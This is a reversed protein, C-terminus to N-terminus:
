PDAAGKRTKPSKNPSKKPSQPADDNNFVLFKTIPPKYHKESFDFAERNEKIWTHIMYSPIARLFGQDIMQKHRHVIRKKITDESTEVLYMRIEYERPANSLFGLIKVVKNIQQGIPEKTDKDREETIKLTTDYLIHYSKAIGDQIAEDIVALVSRDKQDPKKRHDEVTKKTLHWKECKCLNSCPECFYEKGSKGNSRPQTKIPPYQNAIAAAAAAKTVHPKKKTQKTRNNAINLATILSGLEDNVPNIAAAKAAKERKTRVSDPVSFQLPYIAQPINFKKRQESNLYPLLLNSEQTQVAQLYYQSLKDINNQTVNRANKLAKYTNRTYRRFPEINEVITDLSVNYMKEYFEKGELENIMKKAITTKGAGPCGILFIFIPNDQPKEEFKPGKFLKSVTDPTINELKRFYGNAELKIGNAAPEMRNAAPEMRNAVAAM